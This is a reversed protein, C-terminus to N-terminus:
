EGGLVRQLASWELEFAAADVCLGELQARMEERLRKRLRQLEVTLANAPMQLTAAITKLEGHAPPSSLLPMLQEFLAERDRQRYRERQVAVANATLVLAFRSDFQREAGPADDVVEAADRADAHPLAAADRVHGAHRRLLMLLFSRFTGLDADARPWWVQEYSAALFSQAADEAADAGLRARFFAVIAPRYLRALEGFALRGDSSRGSRRILSWRTSPFQAM